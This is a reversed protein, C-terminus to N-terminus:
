ARQELPVWKRDYEGSYATSPRILEDEAYQELIHAIWGGVRSIAFVSSFIKSDLGIGHLVLATYFEM